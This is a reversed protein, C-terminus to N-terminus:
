IKLEDKNLMNIQEFHFHALCISWALVVTGLRNITYVLKKHIHTLIKGSLAFRSENKM